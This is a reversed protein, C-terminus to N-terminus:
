TTAVMSQAGGKSRSRVLSGDVRFRRNNMFLRDPCEQKGELLCQVPFM